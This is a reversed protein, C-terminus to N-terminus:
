SCRQRRVHMVGDGVVAGRQNIAGDFREFFLQKLFANHDRQHADQEQKVEAAGQHGDDNQGDRHQNDNRIMYECPMLELM